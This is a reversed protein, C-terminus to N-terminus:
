PSLALPGGASRHGERSKWGQLKTSSISLAPCLSIPCSGLPVQLARGKSRPKSQPVAVGAAERQSCRMTSFHALSPMFAGRQEVM